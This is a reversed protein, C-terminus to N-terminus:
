GPNHFFLLVPLNQLHAHKLAEDLNKLWTISDAM